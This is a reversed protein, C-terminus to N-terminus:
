DLIIEYASDLIMKDILNLSTKKINESFTCNYIDLIIRGFMSATGAETKTFDIIEHEHNEIFAKCIKLILKDTIQDREFESLEYIFSDCISDHVSIRKSENSLIEEYNLFNDQNINRFCNAANNMIDENDDHLLKPLIENIINLPIRNFCEFLAASVGKKHFTSLSMCENLQSNVKKELISYFTVLKGANENAKTDESYIMKNILSKSYNSKRIYGRIFVYVYRTGLLKENPHSVLKKFLILGLNNDYKMVSILSFAVMSRVSILPDEVMKELTERFDTILESNKDFITALSFAAFGRVSNLGDGEIGGGYYGEDWKESKPDPDQVLYYKIINISEKNLKDAYDSLIDVIERGCPRNKLNHCKRCVNLVEEFFIGSGKIGRLVANFYYIHFDNGFRQILKSFRKPEKKVCEELIRSLDLPIQQSFIDKKNKPNYKHIINVWEQDTLKEAKEITIPSFDMFKARNEKKIKYDGSIAKKLSYIKNKIKKNSKKNDISELLELEFYSEHLVKNYLHYNQYTYLDKYVHINEEFSNIIFEVLSNVQESTLYPTIAGILKRTSGIIESDLKIKLYEKNSLLHNFGSVAFHKPFKIYCNFLIKQFISFESKKLIDEYKQFSPNKNKHLNFICKELTDLLGDTFTDDFGSNWYNDNKIFSGNKYVVNKTIKEILPFIKELFYESYNDPIKNFIDGTYFIRSLEHMGEQNKSNDLVNKMFLYLFDIIKKSNVNKYNLRKIFMEFFKSVDKDVREFLINQKILKSFLKVSFDSKFKSFYVHDIAVNEWKKPDRKYKLYIIEDIIEFDDKLRRFMWLTKQKLNDDHELYKNLLDKSNLYEFYAKSNSIINWIFGHLKHDKNEVIKKIISWEEDKLESTALLIELVLTKIHIRIAFSNLLTYVYKVYKSYDIKKEHELVLRLFLREYLYQNNKILFNYLDRNNAIFQKSYLFDFLDKSFFCYSSSVQLIGKNILYDRIFSHNELNDMPVYNRHEKEVYGFFTNLFDTFNNKGLSDCFIKKIGKWTEFPKTKNRNGKNNQAKNKKNYNLGFNADINNNNSEKLNYVSNKIFQNKNSNFSNEDYYKKLDIFLKEFIKPYDNKDGPINVVKIGMNKYEAEDKKNTGIKLIYPKRQLNGLIKRIDELIMRSDQDRLSYGIFIITYKTFISKMETYLLNKEETFRKYDRETIIMDRPADFDGHFKYLAIKEKDFVSLKNENNIIEIRNTEKNFSSEILKDFNTTCIIKFPLMSFCNHVNGPKISEINMLEKLKRILNNRDHKDEYESLADLPDNNFPYNINESIQKGIDNWDLIYKKYEKDVNKSFGAGIIPVVDNKLIDELLPKPILEILNDVTM